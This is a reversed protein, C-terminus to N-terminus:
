SVFGDCQVVQYIQSGVVFVNWDKNQGFISVIMKRIPNGCDTQTCINCLPELTGSSNLIPKVLPVTQCQFEIM